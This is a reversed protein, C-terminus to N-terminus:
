KAMELNEIESDSMWQFTGGIWNAAEVHNQVLKIQNLRDEVKEPVAWHDTKGYIQGNKDLIVFKGGNDSPLVSSAILARDFGKSTIDQLEKLAQKTRIANISGQLKDAGGFELWTRLMFFIALGVAIFSGTYAGFVALGSAGVATFAVTGRKEWESKFVLGILARLIQGGDMPYIPLMNFAFLVVNIVIILTLVGETTLSLADKVSVPELFGFAFFSFGSLALVLNVLPGAFTIALKESTTALERGFQAVGGMFNLSIRTTKIGFLAAAGAHGLEHLLISLILIVWFVLKEIVDDIGGHIFGYVALGALLAPLSWHISFPVGFLRWNNNAKSM